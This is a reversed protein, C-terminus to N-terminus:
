VNTGQPKDSDTPPQPMQASAAAASHQKRRRKARATLLLVVVAVLALVLLFPLLYILLIVFDQAIKAANEMSGSLARLIRQGFSPSLMTESKVEQISVTVTAYAVQNDYLKQQGTLSDIQYRVDTLKDELAIIDELKEASAMLELLRAEQAKLSNLHAENDVYQNTVDVTSQNTYVVTGAKDTGALFQSLQDAPIRAEYRANRSGASAEGSRSNSALYGGLATVQQEIQAMAAEFDTTELDVEANTILKRDQTTTDALGAAAATAADYNQQPAVEAGTSAATNTSGSAGCGALSFLLLIAAAATFVRTLMRHKM